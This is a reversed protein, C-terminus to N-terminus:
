GYLVRSKQQDFEEPSLLGRDRLDALAEIQRVPDGVTRGWEEARGDSSPPRTLLGILENRSGEIRRMSEGVEGGLVQRRNHDAAPEVVGGPDPHDLV